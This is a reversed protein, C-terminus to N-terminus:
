RHRGAELVLGDRCLAARTADADIGDISDSRALEPYCDLDPECVRLCSDHRQGMVRLCTGTGDLYPPDM